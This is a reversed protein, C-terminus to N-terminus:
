RGSRDPFHEHMARLDIRRATDAVVAVNREVEGRNRMGVLAVDVLPCSLQFQLLAPRYDFEDDPRIMRMWRMFLGSTLGRMTVIGLGAAEADFLSGTKFYPDYPHQYILNYCVQVVQFRGSAVLHYLAPSQAECSFGIHRVLGESRMREMEEVMGGPCLLRLAADLGYITGHIQLLDIWDRGLNSLSTELSHRVEAAECPACKTALFIQGAPVGSLGERFVQESRGKGYSAATDFYNVGADVAARLADVVSGSDGADDPDYKYVYDRLGAPAGGFGLRSVRRGTGGLVM